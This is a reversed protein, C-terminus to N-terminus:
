VVVRVTTIGIIMSVGMLHLSAAGAAAIVPSGTRVTGRAVTEAM